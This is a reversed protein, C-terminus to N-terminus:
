EDDKKNREIKVDGVFKKYNNITELGYLMLTLKNHKMNSISSVSMDLYKALEKHSVKKPRNM